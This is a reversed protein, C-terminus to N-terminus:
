VSFSIHDKEFVVHFYSIKKLHESFITKGFDDQFIIKKTDDPFTANRKRSFIINKRHVSFSLHDKEFFVHFYSAKQINPLSPIEKEQLCSIVGRDFFYLHDIKERFICCLIVNGAYRFFIISMMFFIINDNQISMRSLAGIIKQVKISVKKLTKM